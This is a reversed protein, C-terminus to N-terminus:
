GESADLLAAIEDVLAQHGRDSCDVLYDAHKQILPLREAYLDALTMGGKIVVGRASLDGIRREIEDLPVLLGIVTGMERLHNMSRNCYVASGGTAIVAHEAELGAILDCELSQFAEMGIRQQIAQLSEGERVQILLDTDIFRKSLRKALLVGLTSKGSAPMGILICNTKMSPTTV